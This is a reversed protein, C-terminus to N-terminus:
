GPGSAVCGGVLRRLAALQAGTIRSPTARVRARPVCQVAWALAYCPRTCGNLADPEIRLSAGPIALAAEGTLPVVLEFPFAAGFLDDRGVAVAPRLKNAEGSGPLADRRDIIAIDGPRM